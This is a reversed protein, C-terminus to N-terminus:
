LDLLFNEMARTLYHNRKYYFYINRQAYEPNLRYYLLNSNDPVNKILTDTVFTIGMGYSAVHYATVQQDLKLIIKPSIGADKLLLESRKRTDNGTRLLLFPDQNFVKLSVFNATKNIPASTDSLNNHKIDDATLQYGAAKQNSTFSAPVALLLQEQCFLQKEYIRGDFAYNDIVIDLNGSSLQQELAYTNSEVLKIGIHPYKSMFKSLLPPLIYAAFLNSGGISLHGTRLTNVDNLYNEFEHEMDMLNEIYSLYKQGCETLQIPNTSRDFLPTGIQNEIKKITASLSPQSIYLNDAAKSFSRTKYVEYVYHKGEFM